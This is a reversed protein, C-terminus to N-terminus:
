TKWYAARTITYYYGSSPARKIQAANPVNNGKGGDDVKETDLRSNRATSM